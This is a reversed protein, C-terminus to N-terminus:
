VKLGAARIAVVRLGYVGLGKRLWISAILRM